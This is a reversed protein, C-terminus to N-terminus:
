NSYPVAVVPGWIGNADQARVYLVHNHTGTGVPGLNITFGVPSGAVIGPVPTGVTTLNPTTRYEVGTVNVGAYAATATGSVSINGATILASNLKVTAGPDYIFTIAAPSSTWNGAADKAYVNVTHSGTSLSRIDPLPIDGYGTEIPSNFGGDAPFMDVGQNAQLQALGLTSDLSFQMDAIPSSDTAKARIRVV